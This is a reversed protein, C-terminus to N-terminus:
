IIYRRVGIKGPKGILDVNVGREPRADLDIIRRKPCLDFDVNIRRKPHPDLGVIVRREPRLDLNIIRRWPRAYLDVFYVAGPASFCFSLM